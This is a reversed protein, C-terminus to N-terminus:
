VREPGPANPDDSLRLMSRVGLAVEPGPDNPDECLVGLVVEPGPDNPEECLVGLAIEPGPNNPEDDLNLSSPAGLAVEPGPDNPDDADLRMRVGASGIWEPGPENPEQALWVVEPRVCVATATRQQVIVLGLLMVLLCLTKYTVRQM